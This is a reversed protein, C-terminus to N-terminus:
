NGGLLIRVTKQPNFVEIDDPVDQGITVYSLPAGSYLRMNLINGITITEDLKTFILSYKMVKRYAEAITKLDKYKTTLSLVLYSSVNLMDQATQLFGVQEELQDENKPSHGATDVLIFDCDQFDELASAMDDNSYIIRFPMELIDAYTRLQEAAKVRYTDTTLLALRSKRLVVLSSAIKAITTTKGVGTPGVFFLVEAKDGTKEILKSPGFKLVLKQYISSLMYDISIGPKELNKIEGMIENIYEPDVGSDRLAKAILELFRDAETSTEAEEAEDEPQESDTKIKKEILSHISELKEEIASDDAGKESFRRKEPPKSRTRCGGEAGRGESPIDGPKLFIEEQNGDSLVDEFHVDGLNGKRLVPPKYPPPISIPKENSVASDNIEEIAATVEISTRAFFGFFGGKKVTKVNMIVVGAGLEKRAEGTAEAETKGTFKKIIM